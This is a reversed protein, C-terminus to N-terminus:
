SSGDHANPSLREWEGAEEQSGGGRIPLFGRTRLTNRPKRWRSRTVKCPGSRLLVTVRSPLGSNPSFSLWGSQFGECISPNGIVRSARSASFRVPRPAQCVVIREVAPRDLVGRGEPVEDPVEARNDALLALAARGVEVLHRSRPEEGVGTEVIGLVHKATVVIGVREDKAAFIPDLRSQRPAVEVRQDRTQLLRKASRPTSGPSRTAASIGFMGSVMAAM